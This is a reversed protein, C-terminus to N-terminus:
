RKHRNYPSRAQGNNGRLIRTRPVRRTTAQSHGQGKRHAMSDTDTHPFGTNGTITFPQSQWRQGEANTWTLWGRVPRPDAMKQITHTVNVTGHRIVIEPTVKERKRFWKM